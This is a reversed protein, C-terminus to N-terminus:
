FGAKFRRYDNELLNLTEIKLIKRISDFQAKTLLSNLDEDIITQTINNQIFQMLKQLFQPQNLGTREKIVAPLYSNGNMYFHHIDYIDRGALSGNREFRDLPAVLKNAFMTELTQCVMTRGIEPLFVPEYINAAPGEDVAELKITNRQNLEAKYRLSYDLTKKSQDKIELGLTLFVKEFEGSLMKRDVGRKLDFDLDVSFRDLSGRMAACTGGKFYLSRGLVHNDIIEVLLRVLQSKHYADQPRLYTM